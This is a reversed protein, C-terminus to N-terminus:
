DKFKTNENVWDDNQVEIVTEKNPKLSINVEEFEKINGWIKDYANDSKTHLLEGDWYWSVPYKDHKTSFEFPSNLTMLYAQRGIYSIKEPRYKEVLEPHSGFLEEYLDPFLENLHSLFKPVVESQYTKIEGGFIAQPRFEVIRKINKVNFDSKHIMESGSVMFSSHVGFPVDKNMNIHVYPLYIWDGVVAIKKITSNLQGVDGYLEKKERIWKNYNKARSTLGEETHVRGYECRNLGFTNRKVCTGAKYLDCNQSNKCYIATLKSRENAPWKFMSKKPDFIFLSILKEEEKLDKM